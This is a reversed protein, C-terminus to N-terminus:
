RKVCISRRSIRCYTLIRYDLYEGRGRGMHGIQRIFEGSRDYQVLRDDYTLVFIYDDTIKIEKITNICGELVSTSLKVTDIRHILRSKLPLSDPNVKEKLPAYIVTTGPDQAVQHRCGTLACAVVLSGIVSCKFLVKVIRM